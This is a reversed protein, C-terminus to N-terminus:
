KQKIRKEGKKILYNIAIIAGSGFLAALCSGIIKNRIDADISIWIDAFIICVLTSISIVVIGYMLKNLITM